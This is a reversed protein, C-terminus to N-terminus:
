KKEGQQDEKKTRSDPTQMKNGCWDPGCVKRCVFFCLFAMLAMFLLMVPIWVFFNSCCVPFM